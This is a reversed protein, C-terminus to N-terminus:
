SLKNLNYITLRWEWINQNLFDLTSGSFWCISWTIRSYINRLGCNTFCQIFTPSFKNNITYESCFTTEHTSYRNLPITLLTHKPHPTSPPLPFALQSLSLSPFALTYMTGSNGTPRKELAYFSIDSFMNQWTQLIQQVNGLCKTNSFSSHQPLGMDLRAM